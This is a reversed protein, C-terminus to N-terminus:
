NIPDARFPSAPLGSRNFLDCVPVNAWGFRVTLPRPVDPSRLVVRTGDIRASAPHYIKDEGAIEFGEPTGSKAVLGGDCHGFCLVVEGGRVDMGEYTPGSYEVAEGYALARAALALRFGVPQKDVPHIDRADGCDTTVVMASGAVKLSTLWQAERIEPTMGSYPAIQVFLFPFNGMGWAKRWDAIMAPFLSRYQMERGVNSEGQYWVVGRMSYPLLPAIMGNYLVSPSGPMSGGGGPPPGCDRLAAGARCRWAGTLSVVERGGDTPLELRMADGGGYMGGGGGTDLVRVAIVNEGRKLLRGPVRYIRPIQWGDTSGIRVGNVWTTDIDDVAGLHLDVDGGNWGIPVTIKRRFWFVGDFDPYGCAEIYAPMKMTAWSSDDHDEACWVGDAKSGPDVKSYWSELRAHQYPESDDPHAAAWRVDALASTFDPMVALADGSTWAEAPTGGWASHIIGVPVRRAASLDRAFFYGVASFKPATVPSCVMWDGRVDSKPTHSQVQAVSFQRILPHQADAVEREWNRIPQQGARLGLEREMNSQGSAIWVEGVLVDRISKVDDGRVTMERPEACAVMPKLWVRWRGGTVKGGVTQGGFTVTIMEGERGTGWVPVRRDCQLVAHDRFLSHLEMGDLRMVATLTLTFYLFPIPLKM